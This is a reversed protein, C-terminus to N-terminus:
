KERWYHLTHDHSASVLIRHGTRPCAGWEVDFACDAHDGLAALPRETSTNLDYVLVKGSSCAAALYNGDQSFSVRKVENESLANHTNIEAQLKYNRIDWIGIKGDDSGTALIQKQPSFAIGIVDDTHFKMLGCVQKDRMDFVRVSQDFSATAVLYQHEVGLFVCGYVQKLHKDLTRLVIGEHFDWIIVKCDDGATAMVQQSAHFDIGNVEDGHGTLKNLMQGTEHNWLYVSKDCSACGLINDATKAFAVAYLGGMKSGEELPDGLTKVVEGTSLNYLKCTQDWSATAIMNSDKYMALSHVPAHHIQIPPMMEFNGVVEPAAAGTIAPVLANRMEQQDIVGDHNTDITNFTADSACMARLEQNRQKLQANESMLYKVRDQLERHRDAMKGIAAKKAEFMQQMMQNMEPDMGDISMDYQFGSM